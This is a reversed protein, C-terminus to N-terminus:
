GIGQAAVPYGRTKARISSCTCLRFLLLVDDIGASRLLYHRSYLRLAVVVTTIVSTVIFISANGRTEPNEYNYAPWSALPYTFPEVPSSM